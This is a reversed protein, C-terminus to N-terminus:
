IYWHTALILLYQKYSISETQTLNPKFQYSGIKDTSFDRLQVPQLKSEIM